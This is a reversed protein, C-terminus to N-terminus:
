GGPLFLFRLEGALFFYLAMLLQIVGDSSRAAEPAVAGGQGKSKEVAGPAPLPCTLVNSHVARAVKLCAQSTAVSHPQEEPQLCVQEGTRPHMALVATLIAPSLRGLLHQAVNDATSCCVGAFQTFACVLKGAALFIICLPPFLMFCSVHASSTPMPSPATRTRAGPSKTPTSTGPCPTSPAPQTHPMYPHTYPHPLPQPMPVHRPLLMYRSWFSAAKKSVTHSLSAGKCPQWAAGAADPLRQACCAGHAPLLTRQTREGPTSRPRATPLTCEISAGSASVTGWRWCRRYFTCSGTPCSLAREAHTCRYPREATASPGSLQPAPNALCPAIVAFCTLPLVGHAGGLHCSLYPYSPLRSCVICAIYAVM